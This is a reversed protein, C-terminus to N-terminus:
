NGFYLLFRATPISVLQEEKLEMLKANNSKYTIIEDKVLDYSKLDPYKNSEIIAIADETKINKYTSNEYDMYNQVTAHITEEIKINEQEYMQIQDSITNSRCFVQYSQYCVAILLFFTAIAFIFALCIFLDSNKRYASIIFVIMFIVSVVFLLTFM